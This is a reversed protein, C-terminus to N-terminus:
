ASAINLFTQKMEELVKQLNILTITDFETSNLPMNDTKRDERVM